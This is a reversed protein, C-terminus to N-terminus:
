MKSTVFDWMHNIMDWVDQLTSSGHVYYTYNVTMQRSDRITISLPEGTVRIVGLPYLAKMCVDWIMQKFRSEDKTMRKYINGGDISLYFTKYM